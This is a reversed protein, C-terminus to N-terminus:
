ARPAPIEQTFMTQTPYAFEVNLAAFRRLLALHIRQQVDMYTVFEPVLVWYVTEFDISYAGLNRLHCREFRTHPIATVIQEIEQPLRELVDPPTQYIVGVTFAVRRERQRRFNRIRSQLMDSNSLVVQEGTLARIRTTKLGIHEITGNIEGVQVADGIVFPRDLVITLSAFLDGLINQVALAVAIGGVGLGAVLATINVGLTDLAVLLLLSYVVSYALFNLIGLTGSVAGNGQRLRQAVFVDLAFRVIRRLWVAVQLLGLLFLLRELPLVWRGQPHLVELAASVGLLLFFLPRTQRLLDRALAWGATSHARRELRAVAYRRLLPLVVFLSVFAVAAMAWELVRRGLIVENLAASWEM